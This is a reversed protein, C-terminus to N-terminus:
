SVCIKTWLIGCYCIVSWCLDGLPCSVISYTLQCSAFWAVAFLDDEKEVKTLYNQFLITSSKNLTSYMQCSGQLVKVKLFLRLVFLCLNYWVAHVNIRNVYVNYSKSYYVNFSFFCVRLSYINLYTNYISFNSAFFSPLHLYCCKFTLQFDKKFFMLFLFCHTM